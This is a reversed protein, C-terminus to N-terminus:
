WGGGGGGGSSGGGGGGGGGGSSSSAAAVGASMATAASAWTATAGAGGFAGGGGTWGSGGGSGSAGSWAGGQSMGTAVASAGGFARFWRDMEGALGFALVYPVWADDLDPRERGLEATFWARARALERRRAIREASERTQMSTAMTRTLGLHLVLGAVFAATVAIPLLAYIALAGFAVAQGVVIAIAPGGFGAVRDRLLRAGSGAPIWAGILVAGLVLAAPGRPTAFIATALLGAM